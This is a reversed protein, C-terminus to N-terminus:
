FIKMKKKKYYKYVWGIIGINGINFKDVIAKGMM